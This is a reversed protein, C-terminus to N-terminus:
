RDADSLSTDLMFQLAFGARGYSLAREILEQEGFREPDTPQGPVVRGEDLDLALAPALADGYHARKVGDPYRAPVIFTSYLPQGDIVGRRSLRAYLSDEIQPTGLYKIEGGIKIIADFERVKADLRDRKLQTLANEPVEVDDAIILDARSGTIQGTIGSVKVS